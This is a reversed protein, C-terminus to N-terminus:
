SRATDPREQSSADLGKAAINIAANADANCTYGCSVCRFQSQSPRNSRTAHGCKNCAKSTNRPDVYLVEIGLRDAKYQIFDNLQRFAWSSMMRNFRKSARVRDRIGDLRELVIVPNDYQSAIEVISKSLKHNIDSMWRREKGKQERIKDVRKARGYRRRLDAFHARKHRVEKGDFFHIKDPTAVTALRVVGTDVGIFTPEGDRVTPTTPIKRPLMVHWDGNRQFLKADGNVYQLKDQTKENVCLPLWLYQGRVGTSVRLTNGKISYANKGLGIGQSGNVTPFSTHKQSKSKRLGYYSRALAVAQNVAMRAYDSPLGTSVRIAYYAADHIQKRSSTRLERAADLGIQVGDAFGGRLQELANAKTTTPQRVKLIVTEKRHMLINYCLNETLWLKPARNDTAAAIAAELKTAFRSGGTGLPM